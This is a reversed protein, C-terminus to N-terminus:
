PTPGFLSVLRGLLVCALFLSVLMAVSVVALAVARTRGSPARPGAEALWPEDPGAPQDSESHPRHRSPDHPDWM